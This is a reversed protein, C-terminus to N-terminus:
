MYHAVLLFLIWLLLRLRYRKVSSTVTCSSVGCSVSSCRISLPLLYASMERSRILGGHHISAVYKCHRRSCRGGWLKCVVMFSGSHSLYQPMHTSAVGSVAAKPSHVQCVSMDPTRHSLRMGHRLGTSPPLGRQLSCHDSPPASFTTGHISRERRLRRIAKSCLSPHLSTPMAIRPCLRGSVFLGIKEVDGHKGRTRSWRKM